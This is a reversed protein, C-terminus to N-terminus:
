FFCSVEILGNKILLEQRRVFPGKKGSEILHSDNKSTKDKNAEDGTLEKDEKPEKEGQEEVKM